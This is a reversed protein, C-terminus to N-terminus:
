SEPLNKVNMLCFRGNEHRSFNENRHVFCKKRGCSFGSFHPNRHTKRGFVASRVASLGNKERNPPFVSVFRFHRKALRFAKRAKADGTRLHPFGSEATGKSLPFGKVASMGGKWSHALIAYKGRCGSLTAFVRNGRPRFQRKSLIAIRFPTASFPRFTRTRTQHPRIGDPVAHSGNGIVSCTPFSESGSRSENGKRKEWVVKRAM